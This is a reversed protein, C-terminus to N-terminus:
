WATLSDEHSSREVNLVVDSNGKQDQPPSFNVRMECAIVTQSSGNPVEPNTSDEAINIEPSVQSTEHSISNNCYSTLLQSFSIYPHPSFHNILSSLSQHPSVQQLGSCHINNTLHQLYKIYRETSDRDCKDTPLKGHKGSDNEDNLFIVNEKEIKVEGKSTLRELVAHNNDKSESKELLPLQSQLFDIKKIEKPKEEKERCFSLDIPENQENGEENLVFNDSIETKLPVIPPITKINKSSSAADSYGEKNFLKCAEIFQMLKSKNTDDEFSPLNLNGEQNATKEISGLSYDDVSRRAIEEPLKQDVNTIVDSVSDIAKKNKM